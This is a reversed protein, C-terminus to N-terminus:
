TTNDQKADAPRVHASDAIARTVARVIEPDHEVPIRWDSARYGNSCERHLPVPSRKSVETVYIDCWFCCGTESAGICIRRARVAPQLATEYVSVTPHEVHKSFGSESSVDTVSTSCSEDPKNLSRRAGNQDAESETEQPVHLNAPLTHTKDSSRQDVHAQLRSQGSAYWM